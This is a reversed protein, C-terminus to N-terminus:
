IRHYISQYHSLSLIPTTSVPMHLDMLIFSYRYQAPAFSVKEIAVEGNEARHPICNLRRFQTCLLSATADVDEVILVLPRPGPATSAAASAMSLSADCPMGSFINNNMFYPFFQSCLCIVTPPQLQHSLSLPLKFNSNFPNIASFSM